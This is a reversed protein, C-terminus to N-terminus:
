PRTGGAPTTSPAGVPGGAPGSAPAGAPAPVSADPPRATAAAYALGAAAGSLIHWPPGLAAHVAVSATAAVALTGAFGPSTRFGLVIALFYLPLILDLGFSEPSEVLAGFAIGAVNSVMWTAYVALAYAFYYAPALGDPRARARREGAAFAPDVLLAFALAKQATGFRGLRRGIAASYLVHRFNVALVAPLIAAASLGQGLMDLMLYQSAGAYIAGSALLTQFASFGQATALAGYLAAFPVITALVPLVDVLGDRADGRRTTRTATDARPGDPPRM